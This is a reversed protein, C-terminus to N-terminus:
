IHIKRKETSLFIFGRAKVLSRQADWGNRSWANMVARGKSLVPTEVENSIRQGKGRGVGLSKKVKQMTEINNYYTGYLSSGWLRVFNSRSVPTEGRGGVM